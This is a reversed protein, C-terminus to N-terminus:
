RNELWNEISSAPCENSNRWSKRWIIEASPSSKLLSKLFVQINAPHKNSLSRYLAYIKCFHKYYKRNKEDFRYDLCKIIVDEM